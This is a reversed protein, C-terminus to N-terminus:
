LYATAVCPASVVFFHRLNPFYRAIILTNSPLGQGEALLGGDFVAKEVIQSNILIDATASGQYSLDTKLIGWFELESSARKTIMVTSYLEYGQVEFELPEAQVWDGAWCPMQGSGDVAMVTWAPNDRPTDSFHPDSLFGTDPDFEGPNAKAAYTTDSDLDTLLQYWDSDTLSKPIPRSNHGNLGALRSAEYAAVTNIIRKGASTSISTFAM